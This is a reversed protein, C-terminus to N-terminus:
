RRDAEWRELITGESDLLAVFGDHEITPRCNLKACTKLFLNIQDCTYPAADIIPTMELTVTYPFVDDHDFTLFPHVTLKCGALLNFFEPLLKIVVSCFFKADAAWLHADKFDVNAKNTLDM